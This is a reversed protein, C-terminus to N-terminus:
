GEGQTTAPRTPDARLDAILNLASHWQKATFEHAEKARALEARLRTIEADKAAIIQAADLKGLQAPLTGSAMAMMEPYMEQMKKLIDESM